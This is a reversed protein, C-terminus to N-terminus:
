ARAAARRAHGGAGARGRHLFQAAGSHRVPRAAAHDAPGAPHDRRDAHVAAPRDAGLAGLAGRRHDPRARPGGDGSLASGRGGSQAPPDRRHVARRAARPQDAARRSRGGQRDGPRQHRPLRRRAGQRRDAGAHDQGAGAARLVACPGDGRRAGRAAEIFVRLNERAAEQGVFEGLTKPRLAADLDEPQRQPSLDPNDTM